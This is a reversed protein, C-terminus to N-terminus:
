RPVYRKDTAKCGEVACVYVDVEDGDWWDEDTYLFMWDHTHNAPTTQRDTM